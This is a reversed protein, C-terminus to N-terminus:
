RVSKLLLGYICSVTNNVSSACHQLATGANQDFRGCSWNHVHCSFKSTYVPFKKTLKHWISAHNWTYLIITITYPQQASRYYILVCRWRVVRSILEMSRVSVVFRCIVLRLPLSLSLPPPLSLSFSLSLSPPPPLSHTLSHSLPSFLLM